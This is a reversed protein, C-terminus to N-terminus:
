RRRHAKRRNISHEKRHTFYGGQGRNPKAYLAVAPYGDWMKIKEGKVSYGAARWKKAIESPLGLKSDGTLISDRYKWGQKIQRETLM